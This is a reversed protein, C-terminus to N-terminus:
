GRTKCVVEKGVDFDSKPGGRRDSYTDSYCKGTGVDETNMAGGLLKDISEIKMSVFDDFKNNTKMNEYKLVKCIRWDM